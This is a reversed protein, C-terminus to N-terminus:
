VLCYEHESQRYIDSSQLFKDLSEEVQHLTVHHFKHSSHLVDMIAWKSVPTGSQVSFIIMFFHFHHCVSGKVARLHWSNWYLRRDSHDFM